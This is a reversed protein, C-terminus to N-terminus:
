KILKNSPFDVCSAAFSTDVFNKGVYLTSVYILVFQKVSKEIQIKECLFFFFYTATHTQGITAVIFKENTGSRLRTGNTLAHLKIQVHKKAYIFCNSCCSSFLILTIQFSITFNLFNILKYINCVRHYCFIFKHETM